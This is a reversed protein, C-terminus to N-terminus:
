NGSILKNRVEKSLAAIEALQDDTMEVISEENQVMVLRGDKDERTEPEALKYSVKVGAYKARIQEMMDYLSGYEESSWSLQQELLPKLPAMVDTLFYGCLMTFAVVALATWRATKSDALTKRITEM